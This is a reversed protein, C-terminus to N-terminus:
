DATALLAKGEGVLSVRHDTMIYEAGGRYDILFGIQFEGTPLRDRRRAFRFGSLVNEPHKLEAAVDPRTITVATFVHTEAESRLIVHIQGRKSPLGKIAAWGGVSASRGSVAVDEVFYTIRASPQADPFSRKECLSAMRYVGRREAENLLATSREPAPYLSFPGRGDVGYEKFRIAARDRCELWSDAKAAFTRNATINFAVLLPALGLVVLYPRRPITLQESGMFLMLAWALASLVYYRSHVLGNSEAARGVAILALAAIAFCALPFAITEKRMAGRSAIWGLGTILVAGLWPAAVTQGLAPVSGLTSLWYHAVVLAGSLSFEAFQQARNVQFGAFFGAIALAGLAGWLALDSFRRAQWLMAAGVVWTVIGHALTFTALLACLAALLLTTRTGRAISVVAAGALLVVQFHDISSGAWLLNEYHQWQFMLMALILGLRIRRETTGASYVLLACLIVLSANGILSIVAFNVTGTLWFSGAFMLRSTVMRHENSVEFIRAFFDRVGLGSDLHLVLQIATDLEDWYAVDRTASAVQSGIIVAPVLSLAGLLVAILRPQLSHRFLQPQVGLM